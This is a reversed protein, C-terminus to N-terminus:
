AERGHDLGSSVLTWVVAVSAGGLAADGIEWRGRTATVVADGIALGLGAGDGKASERHFRDFIRARQEPAIGPGSDEVRLRAHTGARETVVRVDGGSGAYKCANDILVGILRDIWEPAAHVLLHDSSPPTVELHVGRRQAVPAFRDAVTAASAVLDVTDMPPVAPTADFRALWLMDDVMVRMRQSEELVRRLADRDSGSGTQRMALSAEAEIVSLPARLEHSADATFDLQRQHARAIPGAVRRGYLLAGLFILAVLAPTIVAEAVILTSTARTVSSLSLAVVIRGNPVPAGAVLYDVGGISVTEAAAVTAVAAPPAPAGASSGVIRGAEDVRWAVVPDDVDPESIPVQAAEAAFTTLATGLRSAASDRLSHDVIVDVSVCLALLLLAALATAAFAARLVHRRGAVVAASM